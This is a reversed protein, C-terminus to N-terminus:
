IGWEYTNGVLAVDDSALIEVFYAADGETKGTGTEAFLYDYAWDQHRESETDLNPPEPVNIDKTETIEEGDEYVNEIKIRMDM